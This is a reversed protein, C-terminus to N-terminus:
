CIGRRELLSTSVFLTEGSGAKPKNTRGVTVSILYTSSRPSPGAGALAKYVNVTVRGRGREGEVAGSTSVIKSKNKTKIKKLSSM